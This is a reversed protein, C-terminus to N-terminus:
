EWSKVPWKNEFYIRPHTRAYKHGVLAKMSQVCFINTWGRKDIVDRPPNAEPTGGGCTARFRM